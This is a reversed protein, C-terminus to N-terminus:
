AFAYCSCATPLLKTDLLPSRRAATRLLRAALGRTLRVLSTCCQASHSHTTISVQPHMALHLVLLGSHAHRWLIKRQCVRSSVSYVLRDPVPLTIPLHVHGASDFAAWTSRLSDLVPPVRSHRCAQATGTSARPQAPVRSRLRPAGCLPCLPCLSLRPLPPTPDCRASSACSGGRVRAVRRAGAVNEGFCYEDGGIGQAAILWRPCWTLVQTGMRQVFSRWQPWQSEHPENFLDALIVNPVSCYRRALTEWADWILQESGPGCRGWDSCWTGQNGDPFDITHMDLMVFIGANRLRDLVDDLVDLSLMGNYRGCRAVRYGEGPRYPKPASPHDKWHHGHRGWTVIPAALPLRVANFGNVHLFQVYETVDYKYLEHVCGTATQFGAWNAGKMILPTWSAAEQPDSFEARIWIRGSNAKVAFPTAFPTTYPDGSPLRAIQEIPTQPPSPPVTPPLPPPPPSPM